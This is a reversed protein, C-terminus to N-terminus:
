ANAAVVDMHGSIVLPKLSADSGPWRAILYATEGLPTIAVDGPAFGGAILADAYLRAVKPTENGPGHVSRMAIAQKALDLAQAEAQPHPTTAATAGGTGFAALAAAILLERM